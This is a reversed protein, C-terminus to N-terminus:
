WWEVHCGHLVRVGYEHRTGSRSHCDGNRCFNPKCADDTLEFSYLLNLMGHQGSSANGVASERNGRM